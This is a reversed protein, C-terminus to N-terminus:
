HWRAQASRDTSTYGHWNHQSILKHEHQGFSSLFRQFKSLTFCLCTLQTSRTERKLRFHMGEFLNVQPVDLSLTCKSVAFFVLSSSPILQRIPIGSNPSADMCGGSTHLITKKANIIVWGYKDRSWTATPWAGFRHGKATRIGNQPRWSLVGVYFYPHVAKKTTSGHRDLVCGLAELKWVLGRCQHTPLQRAASAMSPIQSQSIPGRSHWQGPCLTDPPLHLRQNPRVQLCPTDRKSITHEFFLLNSVTKKTRSIRQIPFQPHALNEFHGIPGVFPANKPNKRTKKLNWWLQKLNDSISASSSRRHNM